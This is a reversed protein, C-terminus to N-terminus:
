KMLVIKEGDLRLTQHGVSVTAGLGEGEVKVEPATGNQVTIVAFYEDGGTAKIAGTLAVTKPTIFTCKLNAGAPDGATVTNGEVKVAGSGAALKMNWTLDKAGQTRDIVVFLVPAGSAGSFDFALYRKARIGTDVFRGFRQFTAVKQDATLVAGKALQGMYVPEMDLSLVAKGDPTSNWYTTIPGLVGNYAGPNRVTPLGAGASQDLEVLEKDGIWQRGLAFLQMDWTRGSKENHCGKQMGSKLHLVALSDQGGQWPKRFIWHGGVPDPMVWPLSTAPPQPAVEFPYNMLVYGAHYAWLIGFSKDGDLGFAHDYLWRSGSKMSVPVTRLGLAWLGTDQDVGLNGGAVVKDTPPQEMWEGLITGQGLGDALIDGGFATSYAQAMNGPGSNWTMRKYFRGELCWGSSSTGNYRFYRRTDRALINIMRELGPIEKGDSTKEGLLCIAAVGCSPARVGNHNHWPNPAYTGIATGNFLNLTRKALNDIVRQRFEPDWADYCLDLTVAMAQAEPGYHIDQSGGLGLMAGLLEKAREAYAKDGTLQYALGYGAPFYPKNKDHTAIQNPLVELMRAMIAKGEPTEMRKKILPLDSKRFILRPHENPELKKFGPAPAAWLPGVKGTVKGRVETKGLGDKEPYQLVGTHSGTYTNGERKLTIRYEASGPASPFWKDRNLKMKVTVTQGDDSVIEGEHDARNFTVAYGWVTKEFKGDRLTLELEMDRTDRDGDGAQEVGEALNLLVTGTQEPTVEAAQLGCALVAWVMSIWRGRKLMINM